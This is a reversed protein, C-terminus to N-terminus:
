GEGHDGKEQKGRNKGGVHFSLRRIIINIVDISTKKQEWKGPPSARLAAAKVDKVFAKDSEDLAASTWPWGEGERV